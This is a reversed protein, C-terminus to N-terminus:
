ETAEGAAGRRRQRWRNHMWLWMEPHRRIEAETAAVYRSTLEAVADDGSEDPHIPPRVEIRFTGRPEPYCFIPVAPTGYRLALRAALTSTMAPRGLFPLETGERPHVRQDALIWVREGNKLARMAKRGAGRRNISVVGFRDRLWRTKRDLHPNDAPRSIALSPGRYLSVPDGLMEWSGFHSTLLLLGRGEAEARLLNEWGVLTVRRCIEEADFRTMSLRDFVMGGFHRFCGRVMRRRTAEDLEPFAATLNTLAVARHRADLRHALGGLAAGTPRAARHPLARVFGLFAMFAGYELSHRVALLSM